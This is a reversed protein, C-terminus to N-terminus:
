NVESQHFQTNLPKLRDFQHNFSEQISARIQQAETLFVKVLSSQESLSVEDAETDFDPSILARLEPRSDYYGPRAAGNRYLENETRFNGLLADLTNDADQMANCLRSAASKKDEVLSKLVVIAAQSDQIIQDLTKLEDDKLSELGWRLGAMEEELHDNADQSRKSITGFGPYLDDSYLGDFLSALGFVCSIIFLVWSFADRLNIPNALLTQLASRAPDTVENTLSDRYHAIGLGILIIAAAAFLLSLMGLLKCGWDKHWVYRFAYKGFVFAVFVNVMALIVAEIFGGILGTDLGHAFIKANLFGEVAILLFLCAYRLFLSSGILYNAQRTLGHRSQFAGLEVQRNRATERLKRLLGEKESFLGSAKREFEKDAQRARNVSQTVKRRGLNQSLVNFRLVAWDVYDQRAKEVRQITAAEPGSLIKADPAPLGAEGLRRGEELLRLEKTLNGVDLPYLDPHGKKHVSVTSTTLWNWFRAM